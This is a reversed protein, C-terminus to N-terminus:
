YKIQKAYAVINGRIIKGFEETQDYNADNWWIIITYTATKGHELFINSALNLKGTTPVYGSEIEKGANNFVKYKLSEYMFENKTVELDISLSQDLTGNSKVSFTNRYVDKYTNYNVDSMPYLTPDKIHTGDIYSIELTGTYLVTSDKKQSAILQYYAMTAGIVMAVFTLLLVVLYFLNKKEKSPEEIIEENREEM